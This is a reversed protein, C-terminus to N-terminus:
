FWYPLQGNQYTIGNWSYKKVIVKRLGGQVYVTYKSLIEPIEHQGCEISYTSKSFKKNKGLYIILRGRIPIVKRPPMHFHKDSTSKCISRLREKEYPTKSWVSKDRPVQLYPRFIGMNRMMEDDHVNVWRNEEKQTAKKPSKTNEKKM